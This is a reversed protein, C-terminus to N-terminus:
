APGSQHRPVENSRARVVRGNNFFEFLLDRTTFDIGHVCRFNVIIDDAHTPMHPWETKWRRLRLFTTDSLTNNQIRRLLACQIKRSVDMRWDFGRYDCDKAFGSDRRVLDGDCSEDNTATRSRGKRNAADSGSEESSECETDDISEISLERPDFYFCGLAAFPFVM